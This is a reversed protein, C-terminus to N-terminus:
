IYLNMHLHVTSSYMVQVSAIYKQTCLEYLRSVCVCMSMLKRYLNMYLYVTGSNVIQVCSYVAKCSSAIGVCVQPACVISPDTTSNYM